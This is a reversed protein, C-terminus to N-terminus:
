ILEEFFLITRQNEIYVYKYLKKLLEQFYRTWYEEDKNIISNCKVCLTICNQPFSNKKNYDIHHISLKRGYLIKCGKELLGCLQCIHNDRKRIVEKFKPNFDYTYPEFSIGGKWRPSKEGSKGYM